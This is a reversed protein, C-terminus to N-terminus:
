FEPGAADARCRFTAPFAAAPSAAFDQARLEWIMGDRLRGDPAERHNKRVECLRFGLKRPVAASAENRPDCHIEIREADECLFGARALAGSLETALGRNVFERHVWYGIELVLPAGGRDHLGSGGFIRGGAREFVGYALDTGSEFEARGARIRARKQEVTQPEHMAWGLWRRLHDLSEIVAERLAAAEDERFPRLVLRETEIEFARGVPTEM